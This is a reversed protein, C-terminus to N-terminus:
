DGLLTNSFDDSLLSPTKAVRREQIGIAGARRRNKKVGEAIATPDVAPPLAPIPPLIPAQPKDLVGSAEAAVAGIGLAVKIIGGSGGGM